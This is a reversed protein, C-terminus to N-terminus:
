NVGNKMRRGFLIETFDVGDVFARAVADVAVVVVVPCIKPVTILQMRWLGLIRAPRIFLLAPCCRDIMAPFGCKFMKQQRLYPHVRHNQIAM